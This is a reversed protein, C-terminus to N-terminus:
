EIILRYIRELDELNAFDITVKGRKATMAISVRTDLRGALLEELELLGPPRLRRDEPDGLPAASAEDAEDLEDTTGAGLGSELDLREKVLGEIDRVSLSETVARRALMEQYSRDPHGLLAKAHGASLLGEGVLKQVAPPLQFLRLHNAVASRSRGVRKAVQEQTLGFDDILQQYAAAEELANLDQRHLNEVLAQELSAEDDARRVIAPITPLGARKAARWRREGAILEFGDDRARVLIPQLVGLEKVSDVLGTLSEEDFVKRPQLPNPNVADIPVERLGTGSEAVDTDAAPILATLGRGLGGKRAM